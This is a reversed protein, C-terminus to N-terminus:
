LVYCTTLRPLVEDTLVIWASRIVVVGETVIGVTDLSYLNISFDIQYRQGYRDKEKVVAQDLLAANLLMQRLRGADKVTFGLASAFVKAKHKGVPHNPNLCYDRLKAIDVIAKENEPLFM